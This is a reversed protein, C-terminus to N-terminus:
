FPVLCIPVVTLVPLTGLFCIMDREGMPQGHLIIWLNLKAYGM